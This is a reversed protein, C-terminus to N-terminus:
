LCHTEGRAEAETKWHEENPPVTEDDLNTLIFDEEDDGFDWEVHDDDDWEDMFEEEVEVFGDPHRERILSWAFDLQKDITERITRATDKKLPGLEKFIVERSNALTSMESWEHMFVELTSINQSSNVDDRLTLAFTALRDALPLHSSEGEEFTICIHIGDTRTRANELRHFAEVFLTTPYNNGLLNVSYHAGSEGMVLLSEGVVEASCGLAQVTNGLLELGRMEPPPAVHMVEGDDLLEWQIARLYRNEPTHPHFLSWALLHRWLKADQPISGLTFGNKGRLLVKLRNGAVVLNPMHLARNIEEGGKALLKKWSRSIRGLQKDAELWFITDDPSREKNFVRYPSVECLHMCSYNIFPHFTHIWGLGTCHNQIWLDDVDWPVPLPASENIRGYVWKYLHTEDSNDFQPLYECLGMIGYWDERYGRQSSEGSVFIEALDLVPTLNPAPSGIPSEWRELEDGNPLPLNVSHIRDIDDIESGAFEEWVELEEATLYDERGQLSLIDGGDIKPGERLLSKWVEEWGRPSAEDIIARVRELSRDDPKMQSSAFELKSLVLKCPKCPTKGKVDHIHSCQM